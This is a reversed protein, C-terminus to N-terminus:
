HLQYSPFGIACILFSPHKSCDSSRHFSDFGMRRRLAIIVAMLIVVCLVVASELISSKGEEDELKIEDEM